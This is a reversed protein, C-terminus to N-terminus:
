FIPVDLDDDFNKDFQTLTNFQTCFILQNFPYNEDDVVPKLM